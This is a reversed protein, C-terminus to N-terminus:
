IIKRKLTSKTHSGEGKLRSTPAHGSDWVLHEARGTLSAEVPCSSPVNAIDFGLAFRVTGM